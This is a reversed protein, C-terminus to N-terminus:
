QQQMQQRMREQEAKQKQQEAQLSSEMRERFLSKDYDVKLIDLENIVEDVVEKLPVHLAVYAGYTGTKEAVIKTCAREAYKNVAKEGVSMALGELQSEKARDRQQTNTEKNYFEVGNKIVGMFRSSIDALAAQNASLLADRQDLQNSSLGLGAMYEGPRDMAEDLCFTVLLQEGKNLKAKAKFQEQQAELEAKQKNRALEQQHRLEDLEMQKQLQEIEQDIKSQAVQKKGACAAFLLSVMMVVSVFKMTKM